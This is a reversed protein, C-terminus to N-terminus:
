HGGDKGNSVLSLYANWGTNALGVYLVQFRSPVFAFNVMALMPWAMFDKELTPIYTRKVKAVAETLCEDNIGDARILTGNATDQMLTTSLMFFPIYTTSFVFQDLIIKATLIATKETMKPSFKQVLMRAGFKDLGAFWAAYLPGSVFTGYLAFVGVRKWDIKENGSLHQALIDGTATFLGNTLCKTTWPHKHLARNYANFFHGVIM